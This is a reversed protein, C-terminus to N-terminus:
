TVKIEAVINYLEIYGRELYLYYVDLLMFLVSAMIAIGICGKNNANLYLAVLASIITVCWAKSQFSCRSMRDIANQIFGLHTENIYKEKM